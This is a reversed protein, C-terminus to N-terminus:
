RTGRVKHLQNNQCKAQQIDTNLQKIQETLKVCQQKIQNNRQAIRKNEVSQQNYANFYTINLSLSNVEMLIM